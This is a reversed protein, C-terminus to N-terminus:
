SEEEKYYQLYMAQEKPKSLSELVQLLSSLCEQTIEHDVGLHTMCSEFNEKLIPEMEEYRHLVLLFSAKVIIASLVSHHHANHIRTLVAIYPDFLEYAKEHLEQEQYIQILMVLPGVMLLNDSASFREIIQISKKCYDIGKEYEGEKLSIEALKINPTASALSEGDWINELVELQELALDSALKYDEQVMFVEFLSNMVEVFRMDRVKCESYLNAAKQAYKQFNEFDQAFKCSQILSSLPKATEIHNEGYETEILQFSKELFFIDSNLKDHYGLMTGVIHSAKAVELPVVGLRQEYELIANKYIDFLDFKADLEGLYKILEMPSLRKFILFIKIDSLYDMLGEFDGAKFLHHSLEDHVREHDDITKFYDAMDQHCNMVYTEDNLYKERVAKRFDKNQISLQGIHRYYYNETSNFIPSWYLPTSKTLHIIESETLGNKSLSIFSLVKGVLGKCETEYDEEMREFLKVFLEKTNEAELYNDLFHTLEEFVGFIRLEDLVIKLTFPSNSIENNLIKDVIEKPLKKGFKDLYDIIFTNRQKKPLSDLKFSEFGAKTLSKVISKDNTSFLLKVNEPVNEPIWNLKSLMFHSKIKELGDVVIILEYNLKSIAEELFSSPNQHDIDTFSIGTPSISNIEDIIRKVIEGGKKNDLEADVFHFFMPIAPVEDAYYSKVYNALLATKGMGKKGFLVLKNCYDLDTNSESGSNSLFQNLKKFAKSQPVFFETNSKIFNIQHDRAKEIETHEVKETKDGFIAQKLDAYVSDGLKELSDYDLTSLADQKKLNKKLRVLKKYASSNNKELFIPNKPAISEDRIYFFANGKMEPNRLVGYQIEMETVSLGSEFDKKLWNFNSLMKHFGFNDEYTPVWGYRQGILGIFFPRSKDIENLCIEIVKGQEADSETIGWRLDVETFGIGKSSCLKKLKPFINKILYEREPMMDRFTSSLFVRVQNINTDSKFADFVFDNFSASSVRKNKYMLALERCFPSSPFNKFQLDRAAITHGHDLGYYSISENITEKLLEQAAELEQNDIRIKSLYYKIRLQKEDHNEQSLPILKLAMQFCKEAMGADKLRLYVDGLYTMTQIVLDLNQEYDDGTRHVITSFAEVAKEYNSSEFLYSYGLDYYVKLLTSDDLELEEEYISIAGRLHYEVASSKNPTKKFSKALNEHMKAVTVDALYQEQYDALMQQLVGIAKAYEKSYYYVNALKFKLEVLEDSNVENIRSKLEIVELYLEESELYKDLIYYIRALNKITKLIKPDDEALSKRRTKLVYVTLIEADQWKDLYTLTGALWDAAMVTRADQLGLIQKRKSYSLSFLEAAKEYDKNEFYILGLDSVAKTYEFSDEGNEAKAIALEEIASKKIEEASM